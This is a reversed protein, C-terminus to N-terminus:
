RKDLVDRVITALDAKRFPKQLIRSAGHLEMQGSFAGEAYGTMFLEKIDPRLHRVKTALGPGSMAGPLVVDTLLLDFSAYQNLLDLAAEACNAEAIDYGLGALMEVALARVENDDEVLLIKEGDATPIDAAALRAVPPDAVESSRPLYLHVFTGQGPTSTITATGGSQKAFGYVMSLGMGSGKGVDKTTFFPEFIHELAEAPIGNGTDSVSLQVYEGPTLEVETARANDTLSLNATEITLTGGGPM